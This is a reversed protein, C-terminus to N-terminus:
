LLGKHQARPTTNIRERERREKESFLAFLSDFLFSRRRRRRRRGVRQFLSSSTSTSSSSSSSWVIHFLASFGEQSHLSFLLASSFLIVLTPVGYLKGHEKKIWDSLLLLTVCVCVFVRKKLKKRKKGGKEREGEVVLM